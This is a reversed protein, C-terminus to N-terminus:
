LSATTIHLLYGPDPHGKIRHIEQEIKTWTLTAEHESLQMERHIRSVLAARNAQTEEEATKSQERILSVAAEKEANIQAVEAERQARIKEQVRLTEQLPPHHLPLNM